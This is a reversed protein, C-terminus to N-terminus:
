MTKVSQKGASWTLQRLQDVQQDEEAQAAPIPIVVRILTGPIVPLAPTVPFMAATLAAVTPEVIVLLAPAEVAVEAPMIVIQPPTAVTQMTGSVHHGM